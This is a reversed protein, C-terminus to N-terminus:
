QEIIQIIITVQLYLQRCLIIIMLYDLFVMCSNAFQKYKMHLKRVDNRLFVYLTHM